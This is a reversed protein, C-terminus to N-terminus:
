LKKRHNQRLIASRGVLNPVKQSGNGCGEFKLERKHAEKEAFVEEM